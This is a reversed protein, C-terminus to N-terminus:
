VCVCVDGDKAIDSKNKGRRWRDGEKRRKTEPTNSALAAATADPTMWQSLIVLLM